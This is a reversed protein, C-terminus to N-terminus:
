RFEARCDGIPCRRDGEVEKGEDDLVEERLKDTNDKATQKDYDHNEVLHRRMSSIYFIINGCLVCALGAQVYDGPNKEKHTKAGGKLGLMPNVSEWGGMRKAIRAEVMSPQSFKVPSSRFQEFPDRVLAPFDFEYGKSGVLSPM